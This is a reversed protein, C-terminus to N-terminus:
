TSGEPAVPYKPRSVFLATCAHCLALRIVGARPYKPGRELARQCVGEGEREVVTVGSLTGVGVGTGLGIGVGVGVVGTGVGEGVGVGVGTGVGVGM